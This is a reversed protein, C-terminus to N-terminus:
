QHCFNPINTRDPSSVCSGPTPKWIGLDVLLPEAHISGSFSSTPPKKQHHLLWRSQTRGSSLSCTRTSDSEQISTHPQWSSFVRWTPQVVRLCPCSVDATDEGLCRVWACHEWSELMGWPFWFQGGGEGRMYDPSLGKLSNRIEGASSLASLCANGWGPLEWPYLKLSGAPHCWALLTRSLLEPVGPGNACIHAKVRHSNRLFGCISVPCGELQETSTPEFHRWLASNDTWQSVKVHPWWGCEQLKLQRDLFDSWCMTLHKHSGTETAVECIFQKVICMLYSQTITGATPMSRFMTPM